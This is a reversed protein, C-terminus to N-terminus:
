AAVKKKGVEVFTKIERKANKRRVLKLLGEKVWSRQLEKVRAKVSPEALDLELAEAIPKGVWDKATPHERWEGAAVAEQVARVDDPTVDETPDPWEWATVVGVSDGGDVINVGNGLDKSILRRWTTKDPPPANNGKGRDVRFYRWHDAIGVKNAEAQSMRNLTRASRVAAIMAGAGRADDVSYEAQGFAAKRVHHVLEISCAKEEALMRWVGCVQNIKGNDNEPVGHSAVFPDIILVDIQKASLEERLADIVPEALKVGHRDDRAVVIEADRGSTIFLRDGIDEPSIGYHLCPAAFRRQLEDAPDELNVYWVRLPRTVEVGLLNRGTVMALSETILLASKGLGGPAVTTSVYKRAMHRDYLWERRPITTPDQWKFPSAKIVKNASASPTEGAWTPSADDFVHHADNYGRSRAWASLFPWGLASDDFSEWKARVVEPTNDAYQLCWDEIAGYHKERHKPTLAAKAARFVNIWTDYDLDDNRCAALVDLVHQDSPARHKEDDISTADASSSGGSSSVREFGKRAIYENLAVFFRAVDDSTVEALGGPGLDCPHPDHWKYPQGSKHLGECVFQQGSALWEVAHIVGATDRFAIRRKTIVGMAKYMLLQRPSGDRYRAPADGLYDVMMQKVDAAIAADDIDIDGGNYVEANLGVGAGWRQFKKLDKRTHRKKPWNKYGFWHGAREDYIMPIKGVQSPEIKSNPSLKAGPPAIPLVWETFNAEDWKRHNSKHTPAPSGEASQAQQEMKM